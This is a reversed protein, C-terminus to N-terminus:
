STALAARAIRVDGSVTRIRLEVATEDEGPGGHEDMPLESSLAGSVSNADIWVGLGPQVGVSVDGSVSKLNIEGREVSQLTQHGSVSNISVPGHAERVVTDGSALNVSLRGHARGIEVDGSASKVSGDGTVVDARVDGSATAADLDAVADLAVDGSATKMSADGLIGSTTVNASATSVDTETGTPCRVTVGVSPGRGLSLWRGARDVEVVVETSGSRERASVTAAAIAERTVEDDRLPVLEVETQTTDGAEIRVDGPGVRVRLTVPGPTEFVTM